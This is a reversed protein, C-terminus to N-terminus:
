LVMTSGGSELQSFPDPGEARISMTNREWGEECRSGLRGLPLYEHPDFFREELVKM